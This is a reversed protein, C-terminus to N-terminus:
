KYYQKMINEGKRERFWFRMAGGRAQQGKLFLLSPLGCALGGALLGCECHGILDCAKKRNRLQKLELRLLIEDSGPEALIILGIRMKVPLDVAMSRGGLLHFHLHRVTQGGDEGCNNM